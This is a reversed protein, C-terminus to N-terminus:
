SRVSYVIMEGTTDLVAFEGPEHTACVGVANRGPLELRVVGHVGRSDVESIVAKRGSVLALPGGPVFVGRPAPLETDIEIWETCGHWLVAAGRDLLVAIAGRTNRPTVTLGRSQGPIDHRRLHDRDYLVLRNGFAIAVGREFPAM